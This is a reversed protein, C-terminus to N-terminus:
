DCLEFRMRDMGVKVTSRGVRRLMGNCTGVQSMIGCRAYMAMKEADM